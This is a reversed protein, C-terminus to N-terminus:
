LFHASLSTLICVTYCTSSAPQMGPMGPQGEPGRDGGAGREGPQM